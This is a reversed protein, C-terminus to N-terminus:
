GSRARAFSVPIEKASLHRNRATEENREIKVVPSITLLGRALGFNFLRRVLAHTRNAMVPAGRDAIKDLLRVIDRRTVASIPMHGIAPLM